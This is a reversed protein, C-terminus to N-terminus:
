PFLSNLAIILVIIIIYFNLQLHSSIYPLASTIEDKESTIICRSTQCQAGLPYPLGTLHSPLGARKARSHKPLSQHPQASPLMQPLPCYSHQQSSDHQHSCPSPSPFSASCLPETSGQQTVSLATFSFFRKQLEQGLFHLPLFVYFICFRTM